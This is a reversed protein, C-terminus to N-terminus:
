AWVVWDGDARVGVFFRLALAGGEAARVQGDAGLRLRHSRSHLVVEGGPGGHRLWLLAELQVPGSPEHARPPPAPSAARAYLGASLDEVTAPGFRRGDPLMTVDVRALPPSATRLAALAAGAPDVGSSELAHLLEGGPGRVAELYADLAGGEGGYDELRVAGYADAGYSRVADGVARLARSSLLAPRAVAALRGSLLERMEEALLPAIEPRWSVSPGARPFEFPSLVPFAFREDPSRAPALVPALVPASVPATALFAM